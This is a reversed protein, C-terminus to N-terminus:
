LPVWSDEDDSDDTDAGELPSSSKPPTEQTPLGHMGTTPDIKASIELDTQEMSGWSDGTSTAVDAASHIESLSLAATLFALRRSDAPETLWGMARLGLLALPIYYENWQEADYLCERVIDRITKICTLVRAVPHRERLVRDEGRNLSRLLAIVGWMGDWGPPAIKAVTHVLLSIELLAWDFLTHGERALAFDILWPNGYPGVLVNALHMDGHVTSLYGNIQRELLPKIHLLPNPLNPVMDHGSPIVPLRFDFQPELLQLYRLLIDDRTSVVRGVLQEVVEGRRFSDRSLRMGRVEIKGSRNIAEPEAGAALYLTDSKVDLKQVAFRSLLVVEGPLVQSDRSWTGLPTLVHGTVGLSSEPLAEIVLAPPLVHEYERWVGFHYPQNQMWWAPGFIEYLSRVLRNAESFRQQGAIERLSIPKTADLDGIFTYKLGGYHSDDPVVPADVVRAASIPLRRHVHLDYRRREYLITHRDDLKVVVPADRGGGIRTPRVLLVQAPSYGGDLERVVEVEAYERFMAQLVRQRELDLKILGRIPLMPVKPILPDRWNAATDRLVVPDADMEHLVRIVVSDGEDLIALLLARETIKGDSVQELAMRRVLEARPTEPFGPWFRRPEYRGVTERISYRVFRPTLGHRELTAATLGGELKTLAVFLHEVGIFYHHLRASEQRALM